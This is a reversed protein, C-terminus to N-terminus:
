DALRHDIYSPHRQDNFAEATQHTLQIQWGVGRLILPDFDTSRAGGNFDACVTLGNIASFQLQEPPASDHHMEHENKRHGKDYLIM